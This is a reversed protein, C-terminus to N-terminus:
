NRKLESTNPGCGQVNDWINCLYYRDLPGPLLIAYLISSKLGFQLAIELPCLEKLYEQSSGIKSASVINIYIKAIIEYFFHFSNYVHCSNLSLALLEIEVNLYKCPTFGKLFINITM